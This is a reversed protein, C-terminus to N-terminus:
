SDVPQYTVTLGMVSEAGADRLTRACEALTAGTTRVDDVLLLRRGVAGEARRVAFAGALNTLRDPGPRGVQSPTNRIRRLLGPDVPVGLRRGVRRAILEAQNYGREWRRLPHLPVPVIAQPRQALLPGAAGAALDGLVPALAPSRRFKLLLVAERLAGQHRGASCVADLGPPLHCDPEVPEIGDTCAACLPDGMEGCVLCVPPFLLDLLGRGLEALPETM